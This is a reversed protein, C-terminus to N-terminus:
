RARGRKTGRAKTHKLVERLSAMLEELERAKEAAKEICRECPPGRGRLMRGFKGESTKWLYTTMSVGCMVVDDGIDTGHHNGWSRWHDFIHTEGNNEDEYLNM